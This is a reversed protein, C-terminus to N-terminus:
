CCPRSRDRPSWLCRLSRSRPSPETSRPGEEATRNGVLRKLNTPKLSARDPKWSVTSTPFFIEKPRQSKRVEAARNCWLMALDASLPVGKVYGHAYCDALATMASHDTNNEVAALYQVCRQEAALVTSLVGQADLESLSRNVQFEGEVVPLRRRCTQRAAEGIGAFCLLFALLGNRPPM